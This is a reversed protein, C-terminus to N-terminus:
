IIHEPQKLLGVLTSANGKAELWFWQTQETLLDTETRVTFNARIYFRTGKLKECKPSKPDYEYAEIWKNGILALVLDAYDGSRFRKSQVIASHWAGAYEHKLLSSDNFIMLNAKVEVKPSPGPPTKYQFRALAVRLNREGQRLNKRATPRDGLRNNSLNRPLILLTNRVLAFTFAPSPSSKTEPWGSLNGLNQTHVTLENKSRTAWLLCRLTFEKGQKDKVFAQFLGRAEKGDPIQKLALDEFGLIYYHFPEPSVVRAETEMAVPSDGLKTGWLYFELKGLNHIQIQKNQYIFAVSIEESAERIAEESKSAKSIKSHAANITTWYVVAVVAGVAAAIVYSTKSPALMGLGDEIADVTLILYTFYLATGFWGWRLVPDHLRAPLKNATLNLLISFGVGAAWKAWEPM